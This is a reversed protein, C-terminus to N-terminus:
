LLGSMLTFFDLREGLASSFDIVFADLILFNIIPVLSFGLILNGTLIYTNNSFFAIPTYTGTFMTKFSGIIVSWLEGATVWTGINIAQIQVDIYGYTISVLLPYVFGLALGLTIMLGGFRRSFGFIRSVLGITIFFSLFLISSSLLIIQMQNIIFALLMVVLFNQLIREVLAPVLGFSTSISVPVWATGVSGSISISPAFAIFFAAYFLTTYLTTANHNFTSLDCAALSFLSDVAPATSAVSTAAKGSCATPLLGLSSFASTPNLSFVGWFSIFIILLALSLLAEYIQARSWGRATPSGLFGGLVYIAAAVVMVAMTAVFAIGFWATATVPFSITFLSPANAILHFLTIALQNQYM